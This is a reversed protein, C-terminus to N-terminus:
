RLYFPVSPRFTFPSPLDKRYMRTGTFHFRKTKKSGRLNVPYISPPVVPHDELRSVEFPFRSTRVGVYGM